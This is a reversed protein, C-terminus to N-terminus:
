DDDGKRNRRYVGYMTAIECTLLWAVARDKDKNDEARAGTFLCVVVAVWFFGALYNKWTEKYYDGLWHGYIYPIFVLLFFVYNSVVHDLVSNIDM